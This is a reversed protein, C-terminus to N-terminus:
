FISYDCNAAKLVAKLVEHTPQTEPSKYLEWEKACDAVDGMTIGSGDEDADWLEKFKEKTYVM